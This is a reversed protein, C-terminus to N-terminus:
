KLLPIVAGIISAHKLSALKVITKIPKPFALKLSNSLVKQMGPHHMRGGGFVIIDPDITRVVLSIISAIVSERQKDTQKFGPKQMVQELTTNENLLIHGIEGALYNSGTYIKKSRIVGSGIGTGLAVGVVTDANKGAGIVAEALAMARVDNIIFVPLGFKKSIFKKLNIPKFSKINVLEGVLGDDLVIGPMAIGIANFGSYSQILHELQGLLDTQSTPQITLETIKHNKDVLGAAIKTGGVDIGLVYKM